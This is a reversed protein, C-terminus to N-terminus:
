AEDSGNGKKGYEIISVVDPVLQGEVEHRQTPPLGGRDFAEKAADLRKPKGADMEEDLVDVAKLLLRRLRERAVEITDMGALRVAENVDEKNPWNYVTQQPIGASEAAAKDTNTNLRAAVFRLQDATLKKLVEALGAQTTNEKGNEGM